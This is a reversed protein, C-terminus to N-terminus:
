PKAVVTYVQCQYEHIRRSEADLDTVCVEASWTGAAYVFDERCSAGTSGHVELHGDQEKDMTFWLTDGEPDSTLCMNFRVSFPARGTIRGRNPDPNTEFSALPAFNGDVPPPTPEPGPTPSPAPGPGPTGGTGESVTVTTACRATQDATTVTFSATYVGATGYTHTADPNTASTGDGYVIAVAPSGEAGSISLAFSVVLPAPGSAPTATCLAALTPSTITDGRNCGSGGGALAAALGLSVVSLRRGPM